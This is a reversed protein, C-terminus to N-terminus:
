LLEAFKWSIKRYIFHGLSFFLIAYAVTIGLYHFDLRGHILINRWCIMLSALPNLLFMITYKGPIMEPSYVIPTCFFLLSVAISSIKELDRFFPNLSAIALSLGYTIFFQLALLLPIVVISLPAPMGGRAILFIWLIPISLMFHIMDQLVMVLVLTDRPFNIKKILSANYIFVRPSMTVSNSFWQWPFLGTILFLGYNEISVKMAVKFAFNYVLAFILPNAISWLYGLVNNSYRLKIEKATLVLILDLYNRPWASRTM